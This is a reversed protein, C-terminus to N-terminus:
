RAPTIIDQGFTERSLAVITGDSLLTDLTTDIANALAENDKKVCIGLRTNDGEWVIEFENGLRADYYYAVVSDCVVADVRGNGLDDFCNTVKEYEYSTFRLDGALLSEVYDGSSTDGQYAVRHGALDEPRRIRAPADKAVVIAHSNQLYPRTFNYKGLRDSTIIVSSIVCDYEGADLGAFIGAPDVPVIRLRLKLKAALAEAMKVDFGAAINGDENYYEMPFYNLHMGVALVGNQSTLGRSAAQINAGAHLAASLVFLAAFTVAFQKPRM